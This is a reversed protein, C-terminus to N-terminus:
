SGLRVAAFVLGVLTANSAVMSLMIARTQATIRELMRTELASIRADIKLDMRAELDTLDAKTALQSWDISPPALGAMLTSAQDEGWSHRAAEFLRLRAAEDITM